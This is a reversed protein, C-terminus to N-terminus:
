PCLNSQWVSLDMKGCKKFFKVMLIFIHIIQTDIHFSYCVPWGDLCNNNNETSNNQVIVIKSGITDLDGRSLKHFSLGNVMLIEYVLLACNEIMFTM